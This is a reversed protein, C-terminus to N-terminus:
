PTQEQTFSQKKKEFMQVTENFIDMTNTKRFDSEYAKFKALGAEVRGLSDATELASQFKEAEKVADFVPKEKEPPKSKTPPKMEPPTDADPDIDATPIAFVQILAYKHAIAMAKNSAKDGMDAAEGQVIATFSSGDRGFFEYQITLIRFLNLGGNKTTREETKADLVKPVSFVGHKAMRSQLHNYVDDIGRFKFGQQTNTKDKTIPEMEAMIDLIAEYVTKIIM